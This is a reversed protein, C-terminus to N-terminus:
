PVANTEIQRVGSGNGHSQFRNKLSVLTAVADAAAATDGELTMLTIADVADFVADRLTKDPMDNTLDSLHHATDACLTLVQASCEATDNLALGALTDAQSQMYAIVGAYPSPLPPTHVIPAPAPQYQSVLAFAQDADAERGRTIQRMLTRVVSSIHEPTELACWQRFYMAGMDHLHGGSGDSLSVLLSHDQLHTPAADWFAIETDDFSDTCWVAIDASAIQDTRLSISKHDPLADIFVAVLDAQPGGVGVTLPTTLRQYLRDARKRVKAPMAPDAAIACLEASFEVM